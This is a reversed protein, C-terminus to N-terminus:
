GIAVGRLGAMKITSTTNRYTLFGIWNSFSNLGLVRFIYAQKRCSSRFRIKMSKERILFQFLFTVNLINWELVFCM